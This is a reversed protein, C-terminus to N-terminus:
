TANSIVVVLINNHFARSPLLIFVNKFFLMSNLFRLSLQHQTQLFVIPAFHVNWKVSIRTCTCVRFLIQDKAACSNGSDNSFFINQYVTLTSLKSIITKVSKKLTPLVIIM